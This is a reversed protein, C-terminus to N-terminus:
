PPLIHASFLVSPFPAENLKLRGSSQVSSSDEITVLKKGMLRQGNHNLGINLEYNSRTLYSKPNLAIHRMAEM